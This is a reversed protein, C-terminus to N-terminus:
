MNFHFATTLITTTFRCFFWTRLKASEREPECFIKGPRQRVAM